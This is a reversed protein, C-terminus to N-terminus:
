EATDLEDEAPRSTEALRLPLVSQVATEDFKLTTNGRRGREEDGEAEGRYDRDRDDEASRDRSRVDKM